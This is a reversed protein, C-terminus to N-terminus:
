PKKRIIGWLSKGWRAFEGTQKEFGEKVKAYMGTMDGDKVYDEVLKQTRKFVEFMVYFSMIASIWTASHAGFSVAEGDFEFNLLAAAVTINIILVFSVAIMAVVLNRVDKVIEKFPPWPDIWKDSDNMVFTMVRFPFLILSIGLKFVGRIIMFAAFLSFSFFTSILVIGTIINLLSAAWGEGLFFAGIGGTVVIAASRWAFGGIGRLTLGLGSSIIATNVRAIENMPKMIFECAASSMYGDLNMYCGSPVARSSPMIVTTISETYIAGFQMFPEILYNTVHHPRIQILVVSALLARVMRKLISEGMGWANPNAYLEGGGSMGLFEVWSKPFYMKMLYLSVDILLFLTIFAYFVGSDVFYEYIARAVLMLADLVLPVMWAISFTEVWGDLM